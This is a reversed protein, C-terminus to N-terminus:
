LKKNVRRDKSKKITQVNKSRKLSIEKYNVICTDELSGVKLIVHAGPISDGSDAIYKTFVIEHKLGLGIAKRIFYPSANDESPLGASLTCISWAERNWFDHLKKTAKLKDGQKLNALTEYKM